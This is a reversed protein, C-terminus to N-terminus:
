TRTNHIKKLEIYNDLVERVVGEGGKSKLVTIGALSKITENASAPCASFGVYRLIEEDNIDDGIYAVDKFKLKEKYCIEKLVAMKNKVGQYIFDMKLKQARRKNLNRNEGTIIGIKIRHQKLIGFAMGDYTSFRKMEDGSESYYMGGDTLVGDVDTLLVKVRKKEKKELGHRAFTKEAAIWDEIEDLEVYSYEPMEYIGIRGSLRNRHSMINAISSIYFSGNEVLDGVFEQRRPRQKYDYNIPTGNENWFFRKVRCCSLLSDFSGKQWRNLANELDKSTLFPNTAQVLVFADETSFDMSLLFELMAAETSAQDTANEAKRRYIKVKAIELGTIVNAILDCDTSAYIADILACKELAKLTWFVLPQGCFPRINKLEIAQSGCRVPIFAINM